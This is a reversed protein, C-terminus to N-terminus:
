RITWLRGNVFRIAVFTVQWGRLRLCTYQSRSAIGTATNSIPPGTKATTVTSIDRPQMEAGRGGLDHHSGRKSRFVHGV